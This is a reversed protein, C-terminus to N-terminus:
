RGICHHLHKFTEEPNESGFLYSTTVFRTAGADKALLITKDNIGGDVEIPLYPVKERLAKVKELREPKFPPGSFGVKESTYFLVTDLDAYPVKIADLETPGDLVLGVEGFSQAKAVFAVQDPMKEVHGLFRRIGAKAWKEVYSLPDEVMMHLEFFIESSYKKFPEPDTFTTNDAFKGDLLDIHITRAFPKVKEIKEGIKDWEKELIGPVIEFM